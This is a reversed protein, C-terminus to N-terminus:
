IQYIIYIRQWSLKLQSPFRKKITNKQSTCINHHIRSVSKNNQPIYQINITTNTIVILIQKHNKAMITM